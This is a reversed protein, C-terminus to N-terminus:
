AKLAGLLIAKIQDLIRMVNLCLLLFEYSNIEKMNKAEPIEM